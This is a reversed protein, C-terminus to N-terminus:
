TYSIELTTNTELTYCLSETICVCVRVCVCTYEKEPEKGNCNIVLYQTYNGISYQLDKNSVQKTVPVKIYYATTNKVRTSHYHERGQAPCLCAYHIRYLDTICIKSDLQLSVHPM